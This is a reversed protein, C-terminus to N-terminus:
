DTETQSDRVAMMRLKETNKDGIIANYCLYAGYFEALPMELKVQRSLVDYVGQFYQRFVKNAVELVKLPLLYRIQIYRNFGAINSLFIVKSAKVPKGHKNIWPKKQLYDFNYDLISGLTVPNRLPSGEQYINVDSPQKAHAVIAVIMANVVMDVPIVDMITNTDGVLCPLIGQASRALLVNTNRLYEVLSPFPEKYTGGIITPRITVLSVDEESQQMLVEGMTKTFVNPWGHMTAREIGWAKTSLTIENQSAGETKLEHLKQAIVKMEVDVDVESAGHPLNKSILGM